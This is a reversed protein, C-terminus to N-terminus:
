VSITSSLFKYFFLLILRKYVVKSSNTSNALMLVDMRTQIPVISLQLLLMLDELVVSDELVVLAQHSHHHNMAQHVLALVLAELAELQESNLESVV